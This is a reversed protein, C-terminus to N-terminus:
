GTHRGGALAAPRRRRRLWRGVAPPVVRRLDAGVRHAGAAIFMGLLLTVYWWGADSHPGLGSTALTAFGPVVMLAAEAMDRRVGPATALGFAAGAVLLGVLYGSGSIQWYRAGRVAGFLVWLVMGAVLCGAARVGATVGWLYAGV